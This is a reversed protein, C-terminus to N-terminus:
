GENSELESITKDKGFLEYDCNKKEIPWSNTRCMQYFMEASVYYAEAKEIFSKVIDPRGKFVDKTAGCYNINSLEILRNYHEQLNM